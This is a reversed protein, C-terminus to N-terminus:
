QNRPPLPHSTPFLFSSSIGSPIHEEVKFEETFRFNRKVLSILLVFVIDMWMMEATSCCHQATGNFVPLKDRSNIRTQITFCNLFLYLIACSWGLSGGTIIIMRSLLLVCCVRNSLCPLGPAAPCVTQWHHWGTSPFQIGDQWRWSHFM